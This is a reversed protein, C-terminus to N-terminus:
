ADTAAQPPATIVGDFPRVEIGGGFRDGLATGPHLRAIRIADDLDAAEILFVAGLPERSDAYPGETVRVEGGKLARLTRATEPEGLSGNVLVRGTARLAADRPACFRGIEELDGPTCAAFQDKDYYCLCLFRM